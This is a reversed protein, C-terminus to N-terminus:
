KNDASRKPAYFVIDQGRRSTTFTTVTNSAFSFPPFSHSLNPFYGFSFTKFILEQCNEQCTSATDGSNGWIKGFTTCQLFVAFDSCILWEPVDSTSEKAFRM